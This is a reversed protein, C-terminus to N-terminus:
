GAKSDARPPFVEKSARMADMSGMSWAKSVDTSGRWEGRSEKSAVMSDKLAVRRATSEDMWETWEGRVERSEAM